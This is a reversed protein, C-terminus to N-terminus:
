DLIGGGGSGGTSGAGDAPTTIQGIFIRSDSDTVDTKATTAVYSVTGGILNPDDLYVYYLTSFGLGAISGANYTVTGFGFHRDHQAVDIRAAPGADVASLPNSSVSVFGGAVNVAPLARQDNIRRKAKSQGTAPITFEDTAATWAYIQDDEEALTENVLFGINGNEGREFRLSWDVILFKQSAINFPSYSFSLTDMAQDQLATPFFTLDLQKERRARELHIKAIRQATAGSTTMPLDLDDWLELGGDEEIYTVNQRPPYDKIDYNAGKELYTGRVSNVKESIGKKAKLRIGGVVQDVDRSMQAVRPSGTYVRWMGAQFVVTGAMSSTLWELNNRHSSGPRLYGNCTYRKESGGAKLSVSEDCINAEAIINDWDIRSDPIGMGAILTGGVKIGRLYDVTCLVPNDSWEWTASDELRHAGSGGNTSDKRPDYIKRGKVIFRTELFGSSLKEKDYILKLHVYAIGRLRHESTWKTSNAVLDSDATQDDGGLHEYLFMLDHFEGNANNSTFNVEDKDWYFKELSTIEHGALAIITSLTSNDDGFGEQYLIVGGTASEGYVLPRPAVSDKRPKLNEGFGESSRGKRFLGIVQTVALGIGIKVLQPIHFAFGAAITVASLVFKGAKKVFKGM